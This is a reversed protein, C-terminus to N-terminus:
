IELRTNECVERALAAPDQTLLRFLMSHRTGAHPALFRLDMGARRFAEPRYLARGGSANVYTRAGLARAIAIIRAEGRLTPDIALDSSRTVRAPLRLIEGVIALGTELFSAVDALPAGLHSRIREGLCGRADHLWRFRSLRLDLADRAQAAFRLDKIPTERPQRALPLTLWEPTGDPGPCECRHVRGRRPFQVEDLIVFTEAAAFLRYYGLYPFFYPQMVAVTGPPPAAGPELGGREM